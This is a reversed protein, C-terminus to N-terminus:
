KQVLNIQHILYIPQLRMNLSQQKQVQNRINNAYHAIASKQQKIYRRSRMHRNGKLGTIVKGIHSTANSPYASGDFRVKELQPNIAPLPDKMAKDGSAKLKWMHRGKHRKIWQNLPTYSDGM